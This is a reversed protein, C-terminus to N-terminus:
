KKKGGELKKVVIGILAAVVVFIAPSLPTFYSGLTVKYEGGGLLYSGNTDKYNFGGFLIVVLLLKIKVVVTLTVVLPMKITLVM